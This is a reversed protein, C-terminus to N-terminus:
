YWPVMGLSLMTPLTCALTSGILRMPPTGSGAIWSPWSFYCIRRRLYRRVYSTASLLAPQPGTAPTSSAPRPAHAPGM